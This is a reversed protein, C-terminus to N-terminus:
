LNGNKVSYFKQTSIKKNWRECDLLTDICLPLYGAKPRWRGQAMENQTKKKKKKKKKKILLFYINKAKHM